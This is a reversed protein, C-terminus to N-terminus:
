LSEGGLEASHSERLGGGLETKENENKERKEGARRLTEGRVRTPKGCRLGLCLKVWRGMWVALEGSFSTRYFFYGRWSRSTLSM